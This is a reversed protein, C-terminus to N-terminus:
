CHIESFTWNLVHSLFFSSLYIEPCPACPLTLHQVPTGTSMSLRYWSSFQLFCIVCQLKNIPPSQGPDELFAPDRYEYVWMLQQQRLLNQLLDLGLWDDNWCPLSLFEHVEGSWILLQSYNSVEPLSLTLNNKKLTTWPGCKLIHSWLWSVRWYVPLM